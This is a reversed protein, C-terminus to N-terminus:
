ERQFAARIAQMVLFLVGAGAIGVASTNDKGSDRQSAVARAGRAVGRVARLGGAECQTAAAFVLLSALLMVRLSGM